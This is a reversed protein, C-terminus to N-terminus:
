CTDSGTIVDTLSQWMEKHKACVTGGGRKSQSYQRNVDGICFIGPKSISVGWKSHDQTEKFPPQGPLELTRVNIVQYTVNCETPMKNRDAGNMWTEWMMSSEFYPGVLSGYLNNDWKSNKAFVFLEQGGLTEIVITENAATKIWEKNIVQTMTPAAEEVEGSLHSDYVYPKDMLLQGAVDNITSISLTLCFFSQGYIAQPAPYFYGEETRPPFKPVSHVLWFGQENNYCVDGKLHGFSSHDEDPDDNYLVYAVSDNQTNNYIQSLTWGVSNNYADDLLYDSLLLTPNDSDAYAYEYRNPGKLVVWWDVSEGLDNKCSIEGSVLVFICCFLLSCLNRQQHFGFSIM